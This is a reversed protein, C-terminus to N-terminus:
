VSLPSSLRRIWLQIFLEPAVSPGRWFRFIDKSIGVGRM